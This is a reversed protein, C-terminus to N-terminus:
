EGSLGVIAKIAEPVEYGGQGAFEACDGLRDPGTYKQRFLLNDNLFYLVLFEDGGNDLDATRCYHEASIAGLKEVLIPEGIEKLVQKKGQGVEPIFDVDQYTAPRTKAAVYSDILRDFGNIGADSCLDPKLISALHLALAFGSAEDQVRNAAISALGRHSNPLAAILYNRYETIFDQDVDEKKCSGRVLNRLYPVGFEELGNKLSQNLVVIREEELFRSRRKSKGDAIKSQTSKSIEECADTDLSPRSAIEKVIIAVAKWDKKIELETSKECLKEDDWKKVSKESVGWAGFAQPMVLMLIIVMLTKM